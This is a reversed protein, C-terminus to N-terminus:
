DVIPAALADGIGAAGLRELYARLRATDCHVTLSRARGWRLGIVHVGRNTGPSGDVFTFRDTWVVAITTRWPWGSVLVAHLEFSIDPFIRHLREYWARISGMTRRTGGLAHDGVMVHEAPEAFQAAVFGVDGANLRAFLRRIRGEVIRHYM